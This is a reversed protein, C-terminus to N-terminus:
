GSWHVIDGIYTNKVVCNFKRLAFFAIININVNEGKSVEHIIGDFHLIEVKKM